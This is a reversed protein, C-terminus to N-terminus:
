KHNSDSSDSDSDSDSGSDSDTHNRQKKIDDMSWKRNNNNNDNKDEKKPKFFLNKCALLSPPVINGNQKFQIMLFAITFVSAGFTGYLLSGWPDSNAFINRANMSTDPDSEIAEVGTNIIIALIFIVLTVIPVVMNWWRGPTDKAPEAGSLTLEEDEESNTGSNAVSGRGGDTRKNIRCLRESILMPGFEIALAMLMFQFVLMYIPYFRTPITVVFFVFANDTLGDPMIGGNNIKILDLQEQIQQLEFGIWSSLPVISADPASTGDVLFALKERSIHFMDTLPQFTTGVVLANAYDDFFFMLGALFCAFQTRKGTKALRSIVASFGETGGSRQILFVLGSLFVTFLIVFQHEESAASGLIYTGVSMEFAYRFSCASIIFSGIWIGLFLSVYVNKVTVAFFIIFILPVMTTFGTIAFSEMYESAIDSDDFWVNVKIITDGTEDTSIEDSEISPPFGENLVMWGSDKIKDNISISYYLTTNSDTLIGSFAVPASVIFPEKTLIILLESGVLASTATVDGVTINIDQAYTHTYFLVSILLTIYNTM